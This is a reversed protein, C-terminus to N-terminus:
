VYVASCCRRCRLVSISSSPPSSSSIAHACSRGLSRGVLSSPSGTVEIVGSMDDPSGNGGDRVIVVYEETSENMRLDTLGDRERGRRRPPTSKGSGRGLDGNDRTRTLSSDMAVGRSDPELGGPRVCSGTRRGIGILIRIILRRLVGASPPAEGGSVAALRLGRNGAKKRFPGVALGDAATVGSGSIPKAVAIVGIGGESTSVMGSAADEPELGLLMSLILNAM